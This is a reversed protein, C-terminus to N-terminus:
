LLIAIIKIINASYILQRKMPCHKENEPFQINKAHNHCKKEFEQEKVYVLVSKFNHSWTKLFFRVHTLLRFVTDKEIYYNLGIKTCFLALRNVM